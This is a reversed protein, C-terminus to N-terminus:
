TNHKPHPTISTVSIPQYYKGDIGCKSEHIRSVLANDYELEGTVLHHKGFKSCWGIQKEGWGDLPYNFHEPIYYKCNVCHNKTKVIFSSFLRLSM